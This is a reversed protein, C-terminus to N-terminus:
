PMLLIELILAGHYRVSPPRDHRDLVDSHEDHHQMAARPERTETWRGLEADIEERHAIRGAASDYASRQTWEPDGIAKRLARWEEDDRVTIM